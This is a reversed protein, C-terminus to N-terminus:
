QQVQYKYRLSIEISNVEVYGLEAFIAAQYGSGTGIELLKDGLELELLETMLAVLSPQSITQGYGIPLATDFYAMDQLDEPVFCHRPVAGLAKIVDPNELNQAEVAHEVLVERVSIFEAQPFKEAGCPIEDGPDFVVNTASPTSSEESIRTTQTEKVPKCGGMSFLVLFCLLLMTTLVRYKKKRSIFHKM